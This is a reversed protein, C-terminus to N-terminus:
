SGRLDKLGYFLLAGIGLSLSRRARSRPREVPLLILKGCSTKTKRERRDDRLKLLWVSLFMIAVYGLALLLLNM